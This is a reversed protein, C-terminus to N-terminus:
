RWASQILSQKLLGILVKFILLCGLFEGDCPCLRSHFVKQYKELVRETWLNCNSNTFEKRYHAM